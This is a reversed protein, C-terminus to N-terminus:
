LNNRFYNITEDLHEILKRPDIYEGILAKLKNDNFKGIGSDYIKISAPVNKDVVLKGQGVLEIILTALESIKLIYGSVNFVNFGILNKYLLNKLVTSLDDVYLISRTREEGFVCIEENNLALKIFSGILGIDSSYINMNKGFCNPIRLVICNFNYKESFFKFYYEATLKNISHIDSPQPVTNEDIEEVSNSYIARSSLFIVTKGKLLEAYKLFNLHSKCNLELDYETKVIALNHSTWGMLDIIIDSEIILKDLDKTEEIKNPILNIRHIINKINNINGGTLPLFGDIITIKNNSTVFLHNILNSGIFGAGGLILFKKM